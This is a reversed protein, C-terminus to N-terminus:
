KSGKERAKTCAKFFEEGVSIQKFPQRNGFPFTPEFYPVGKRKWFQFSWKFYAYVIVFLAVFIGLIDYPIHGTLIAMIQFINIKLRKAFTIGSSKMLM